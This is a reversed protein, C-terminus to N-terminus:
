KRPARDDLWPARVPQGRRYQELRRRASDLDPGTAGASEMGAIAEEELKAADAFRGVEALAMAMTEAHHTSPVADILKSAIDAAM